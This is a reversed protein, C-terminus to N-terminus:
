RRPCSRFSRGRRHRLAQRHLPLRVDAAPAAAVAPWRDISDRRREGAPNKGPPHLDGADPHLARRDGPRLTCRGSGTEGGAVQRPSGARAGAAELLELEYASVLNFFRIGAEIAADIEHEQKAIGAFVVADTPLGAAQIRRLEGVSVIDFGAGLDAFLQLIALNSNSKVAYCIRADAGFASRLLRYRDVMSTESYLYLPTGYEDALQGVDCDECRLAGDVYSFHDADFIGDM